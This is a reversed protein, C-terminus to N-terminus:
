KSGLYRDVAKCVYYAIINALVSAAIAWLFSDM